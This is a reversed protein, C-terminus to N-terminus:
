ISKSNHTDNERSAKKNIAAETCLVAAKDYDGYQIARMASQIATARGGSGEQIDYGKQIQDDLLKIFDILFQDKPTM